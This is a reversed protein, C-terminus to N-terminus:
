FLLRAAQNLLQLCAHMNECLMLIPWFVYKKVLQLVTSVLAHKLGSNNVLRAPWPSHESGYAVNSVFFKSTPERPTIFRSPSNGRGFPVSESM